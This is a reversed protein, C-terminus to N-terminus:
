SFVDVADKKDKEKGGVYGNPVWSSNESARTRFDCRFTRRRRLPLLTISDLPPIVLVETPCRWSLM